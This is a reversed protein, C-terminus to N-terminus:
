NNLEKLHTQAFQQIQERNEFRVYAARMKFGYVKNVVAKKSFWQFDWAPNNNGGGSPSQVIWIHDRRDFMQVYAFDNRVGFYWPETATYTSPHNVLTLPFDADVDPLQPLDVPAHGSLVGHKPTVARIWRTAQAPKDADRGRIHIAKDQPANMYSAWFLGIFGRSFEDKRPICEFSYEITGDVLMQYRGCSELHFNATPAQYLEVTFEDIIRLEMPFRRPEFKEVLRKADGDHIHEYNLGAYAPVFASEKDDVHGLYALGSYGARHQALEPVGEDGKENDVVIAVVGNRQLRVHHGEAVTFKVREDTLSTAASAEDLNGWSSAIICVTISLWTMHRSVRGLCRPFFDTITM